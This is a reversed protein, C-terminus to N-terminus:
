HPTMHMEISCIHFNFKSLYEKIKYDENRDLELIEMFNIIIFEELVNVVERKKIILYEFDFNNITVHDETWYLPFHYANDETTTVISAM